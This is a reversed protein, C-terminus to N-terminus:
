QGAQRPSIDVCRLAAAARSFPFSPPRGFPLLVCLFAFGHDVLRLAPLIEFHFEVELPLHDM